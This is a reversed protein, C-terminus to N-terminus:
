IKLLDRQLLTEAIQVANLAAGKRLNDSVTWFELVNEGLLSARIRGIFVEDKGSCQIPVPYIGKEPEDLIQIGPFENWLRRAEEISVKNQFRAVIVESHCNFVPVRVCTASVALHPLHFIKRTELLMKIEEKFYGPFDERLSSIQPILNGFIPYNYTPGASLPQNQCWQRAQTELERIGGTGSGSVAQYTSVMVEKLKWARHLPFLAMAMQITSCNPNAILGQHQALDEANIEPIVLPVRPDMRFDDGNDIVVCGEQVAKWGFQVSAGKEGETGAFLALDFSSWNIDEISEIAYEEGNWKEVRKRRGILTLSEMPFDREKLVKVIEKGVAGVGVVALKFKKM